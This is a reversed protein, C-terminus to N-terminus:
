EYIIVKKEVPFVESYEGGYNMDEFDCTEKVSDRYNIKFLKGDSLRRVVSNEETGHRWTGTIEHSVVFYEESDGHVVTRIEDTSLKIKEREM